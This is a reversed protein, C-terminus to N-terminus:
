KPYETHCYKDGLSCCGTAVGMNVLGKDFAWYHKYSGNRLINFTDILAQNGSAEDIYKDLDDIDTVEVMCGVELSAQTSPLGYDYLTDYLEQIPEIAFKGTAMNTLESASYEIEYNALDTINIDYWEVLNQVLEMHKTESNNAINELQNAPNIKNLELYVDRALKEEHWMYALSYKQDQSIVTKTYQTLDISQGDGNGGKGNSGTAACGVVLIVISTTMFWKFLTSTKM